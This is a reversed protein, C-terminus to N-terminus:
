CYGGCPAHLEISATCLLAKNHANVIRLNGGVLSGVALNGVALSGVALSRCAEALNHFAVAAALTRCAGAPLRQKKLAYILM